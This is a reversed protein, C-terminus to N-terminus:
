RNLASLQQTLYAGTSQFQGVAVDMAIFQKQLRRQLNDLRLQVTDRRDSIDRLRKSLSDSQTELIGGAQIYTDLDNQLRSAVGDSSSFLASVASLDSKVAKEFKSSDLTMLGDKDIDIGIMNLTNLSSNTSAVPSGLDQRVKNMINRLTSDGLLAGNTGEPGGYRGLSQSLSFLANYSDVFGKVSESIAQTDVEVAINITNGPQASKLDLTVGNIVDSISNSSRTATQGDVQIIADQAQTQEQMNTVGSGAPDFVLQSLGSADTNNGDDDVATVSITNQTGVEQSSLVLRSVTGGAGDDVNIISANVGPNDTAGNIADRIALLSNNNADITLALTQGNVSLNLTGTGVTANMDSFGAGGSVLKHASALQTVEVSYRAPVAGFEATAVIVQEDSSSAKNADFATGSKLKTFSSQFDSLASKLSGIASLRADVTSKQRDLAAFAPQGEAQVLQNVIGNIDIGSGIGLASAIAM